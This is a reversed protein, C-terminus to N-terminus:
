LGVLTRQPGPRSIGLRGFSLVKNCSLGTGARLIAARKIWDTLSCCTGGVLAKIYGVSYALAGGADSGDGEIPFIHDPNLCGDFGVEKLALIIKFMNM